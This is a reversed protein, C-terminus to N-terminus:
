NGKGLKRVAPASLRQQPVLIVPSRYGGYYGGWYGGWYGPGWPGWFPDYYLYPYPYPYRVYVPRKPWLYVTQAEVRPYPYDYTGVKHTVIGHLTGTFTVERGKTFIEPDYFGSHCAVFRGMSSQSTQPRAISDLPFALMYFCTHGDGPDTSIIKGGWRVPAQNAAGGNASQPTVSAYTGVLPKPITACAGLALASLTVLALKWRTM